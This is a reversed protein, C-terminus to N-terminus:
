GRPREAVDADGAAPAPDADCDKRTLLRWVAIALLGHGLRERSARMCRIGSM